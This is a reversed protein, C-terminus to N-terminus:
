DYRVRPDLVAALLDSCLNAVIVFGGYLVVTGLVVFYDRQLASEVFDRGLGPIQFIKEVVLSGTLIAAVAPGIFGVVPLLGGRLVHVLVIRWEGLGKARASRVFDQNVIELLGARSLRSIRAAFPLALTLAPLVVRWGDLYTSEAPVQVWGLRLEFLLILLPGIVFTPISLGLMAGATSAYDFVGNRRMAGVTGAGIGILLALLLAMTGLYLSPALYRGIIGLVTEGPRHLSPGMDILVWDRQPEGDALLATVFPREVNLRERETGALRISRVVGADLAVQAERTAAVYRGADDDDTARREPETFRLTLTDADPAAPVGSLLAGVEANFVPPTTPRTHPLLRRVYRWWQVVYPRDLGYRQELGARVAPDIARESQFPDGPPAHIIVFSLTILIRLVFPAAILRRLAYRLV